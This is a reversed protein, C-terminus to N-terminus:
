LPLDKKVFRTSGVIYGIVDFLSIITAYNFYNLSSLRVVFDSDELSYLLLLTRSSLGVYRPSLFVM